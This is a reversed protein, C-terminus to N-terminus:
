IIERWEGNIKKYLEAHRCDNWAADYLARAVFEKEYYGVYPWGNSCEVVVKFNKGNGDM